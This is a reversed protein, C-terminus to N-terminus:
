TRARAWCGRDLGAYGRCGQVHGADGISVRTVGVDEGMGGRSWLGM